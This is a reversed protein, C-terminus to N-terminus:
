RGRSVGSVVREHGGYDRKRQLDCFGCEDFLASVAEAQGAQVELALVGGAALHNPAERVIREILSLGRPGGDLALVPEFERIGVALERIDASPVYPPNATILDFPRAGAFPAFLDGEYLGVQRIVGLRSANERAV